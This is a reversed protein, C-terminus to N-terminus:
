LSLGVSELGIDSLTPWEGGQAALTAPLCSLVALFLRTRNM